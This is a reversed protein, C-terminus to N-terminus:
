LCSMSRLWKQAGQIHKGEEKSYVCGCYNQRYLGFEKSMEMTKKFGDKKKFNSELFHVGYTEAAARGIRNITEANKYPSVTLTTTFIDFDEERARQATRELRMRFCVGCRRGGEPEREMGETATFWGSADYEGCLLEISLKEALSKAENWRLVYEEEPHINPNYFLGTVEYDKKLLDIVYPSCGACCLHLLLKPNKSTMFSM